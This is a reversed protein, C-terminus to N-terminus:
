KNEIKATPPELFLCDEIVRSQGTLEAFAMVRSKVDKYIDKYFIKNKMGESIGKTVVQEATATVMLQKTSMLARLNKFKGEAIFLLGNVMKTFLM